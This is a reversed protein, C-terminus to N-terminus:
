AKTIAFKNHKGSSDLYVNAKTVNLGLNKLANMTDILAGLRDGFTVEVVTADPDSDLDIIVKPTPVEATKNARSVEVASSSAKPCTSASLSLRCHSLIYVSKM